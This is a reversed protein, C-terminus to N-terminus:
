IGDDFKMYWQSFYQYPIPDSKGDRPNAIDEIHNFNMKLPGKKGGNSSDRKLYDTLDLTSSSSDGSNAKVCDYIQKKTLCDSDSMGDGVNTLKKNQMNYNGDPTLKYGIGPPGRLGPLGHTNM